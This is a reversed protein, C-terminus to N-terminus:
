LIVSERKQHLDTPFSVSLLGRMLNYISLCEQEKRGGGGGGGGGGRGRGGAGAIGV